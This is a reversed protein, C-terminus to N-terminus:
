PSTRDIPHVFITDGGNIFVEGLLHEMTSSYEGVNVGYIVWHYKPFDVLVMTRMPIWREVILCWGEPLTNCKAMLAMALSITLQGM